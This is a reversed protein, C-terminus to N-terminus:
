KKSTEIQTTERGKEAEQANEPSITEKSSDPPLANEPPRPQATAGLRVCNEQAMVVRQLQHPATAMKLRELGLPEIRRPLFARAYPHFCERALGNVSNDSLSENEFGRV